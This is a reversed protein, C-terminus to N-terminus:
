RNAARVYTDAHCPSDVGCWCALTKGRLTPLEAIIRNRRAALTAFSRMVALPIHPEDDGMPQGLWCRFIQEAHPGYVGKGCGPGATKGRRDTAWPNGFLSPRGVYVAGEPMRWGATRKRQIRKPSTM